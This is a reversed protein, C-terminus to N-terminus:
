TIGFIGNIDRKLVRKSSYYCNNKLIIKIQFYM